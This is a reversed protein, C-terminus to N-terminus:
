CSYRSEITCSFRCPMKNICYLYYESCSSPESSFSSYISKYSCFADICFNYLCCISCSLMWKISINVCISSGRLFLSVSQWFVVMSNPLMYLMHEVQRLLLHFLILHIVLMLVFSMPLDRM